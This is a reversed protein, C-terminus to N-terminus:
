CHLVLMVPPRNNHLPQPNPARKAFVIDSGGQEAVLASRVQEALLASEEQEAIAQEAIPTSGGLIAM